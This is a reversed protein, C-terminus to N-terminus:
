QGHIEKPTKRAVPQLAKNRLTKKQWCPTILRMGPVRKVARLMYVAGSFKWWRRGAQETFQWRQLWKQQEFPPAYCGFQCSEIEFGLLSLWDKLRPLALYRGRWPFSERRRAQKRLGWLSLPNFGCIVIQGEAILVRQNAADYVLRIGFGASSGSAFFANEEAISTIYTFYRDKNLARAPAVLADIYTQVDSYSAPNVGSAVDSPFLYWEDIVSKAFAQRSALGCTATPTSIALFAPSASRWILSAM